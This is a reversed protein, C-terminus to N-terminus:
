AAEMSVSYEGILDKIKNLFSKPSRKIVFLLADNNGNCADNLIVEVYKNIVKVGQSSLSKVQKDINKYDIKIQKGSVCGKRMKNYLNDIGIESILFEEFELADEESINSDVIRVTYPVNYGRKEYARRGKGKGVYLPKNNSDLHIYTYYEKTM